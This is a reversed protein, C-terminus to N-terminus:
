PCVSSPGGWRPPLPTSATSTAASAAIRCSLCRKDELVFLVGPWQDDCNERHGGPARSVEFDTALDRFLIKLFFGEARSDIGISVEQTIGHRLIGESGISAIEESAQFSSFGGERLDHLSSSFEKKFM